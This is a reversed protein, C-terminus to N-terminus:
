ACVDDGSCEDHGPDARDDLDDGDGDRECAVAYTLGPRPVIVLAHHLTSHQVRNYQVSAVGTCAVAYTLGLMGVLGPKLALM